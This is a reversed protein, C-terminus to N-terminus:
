DKWTILDQLGRKVKPISQQAARTAATAVAINNRVKLVFQPVQRPEWFSAQSSQALFEKIYSSILQEQVNSLDFLLYHGSIKEVESLPRLTSIIYPGKDLRAPIVRLFKTARPYNYNRLSWEALEGILPSDSKADRVEDKIDELESIEKLPFYIINMTHNSINHAELDKSTQVNKLLAITTQLHRERAEVNPSPNFLVYSYLGYGCQEKENGYLYNRSETYRFALYPPASSAIRESGFQSGSRYALYSLVLIGFLLIGAVVAVIKRYNTDDGKTRFWDQAIGFLYIIAFVVGTVFVMEGANLRAYPTKFYFFIWILSSIAFASLISFANPKM